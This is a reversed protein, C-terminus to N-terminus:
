KQVCGYMIKSVSFILLKGPTTEGVPVKKYKDSKWSSSNQLFLRPPCVSKSWIHIWINLQRLHVHPFDRFVDTM